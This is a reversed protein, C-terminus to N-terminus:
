PGTIRRIPGFVPNTRWAQAVFYGLLLGGVIDISYHGRAFLLAACVVVLLVQQIRRLPSPTTLMALLTAAGVHGSPFMGYQQVSFVFAGEGQAPALPTLVMIVARLLYMLAFVSIAAPLRRFDRRVLDVLFLGFGIVLAVVTLYRLADVRPLLEFLLDDPHPRDPFRSQILANGLLSCTLALVLLGVSLVWARASNSEAGAETRAGEPVGVDM